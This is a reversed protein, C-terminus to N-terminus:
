KKAQWGRATRGGTKPEEKVETRGGTLSQTCGAPKPDKKPKRGEAPPGIAGKLLPINLAGISGTEVLLWLTWTDGQFAVWDESKGIKFESTRLISEHGFVRSSPVLLADQWPLRFGMAAFAQRGDTAAVQGDEGRLRLCGFAYRTSTDDTTEAAQRLAALL